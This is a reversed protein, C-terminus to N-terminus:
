RGRLLAKDLFGVIVRECGAPDVRQYGGHDAGEVVWLDKPSGAADYVRRVVPVPTDDDLSGTVFLVPRPAIAAVHDIPRINRADVGFHRVTALAPWLSLPGRRNMKDYIEEEFSTWVAELIVARVRPDAAAEVAVTSAGISFGLAAVRGGTVDPRASVFDIAARLDGQERDSWTSVDGESEGHARWDFFLAGYGHRSLMEVDPFFRMRNAALGHGLVVVAGNKSPVYFGRLLLGDPSRFSVDEVDPFAARVRAKDADTVPLRAPRFLRATGLVYHIEVAALAALALGLAVFVARRRKV